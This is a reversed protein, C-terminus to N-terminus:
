SIPEDDSDLETEEIKGVLELMDLPLMTDQKEVQINPMRLRYEFIFRVKEINEIEKALDGIVADDVAQIWILYDTIFLDNFIYRFEGSSVFANHIETLIHVLAGKGHKFVIKLDEVIKQALDFNRYLPYCLSRRVAFALAQKATEYRVLYSLTPSLKRLTWGSECTMEWGNVRQEYCFAFIMDILGLAVCKQEKETLKPLKKVKLDKLKAINDDSIKLEMEFDANLISLLEDDPDLTDALYREEDFNEMDYLACKELRNSIECCEPNELDLINGIEDRLREIVGIKKWAFGYGFDKAMPEKLRIEKEVDRVEQPHLFANEDDEEDDGIEQNEEDEIEEVMERGHIERQPRLLETVMDLCEFKEGHHLKEITIMFESKEDNFEISPQREAVERVRQKLHLRLYYPACSFIFMDDGYDVEAEQIKAYPTRIRIKLFQDDTCNDVIKKAWYSNQTSTPASNFHLFRDQAREYVLLTWHSGGCQNTADVNDNLMFMIIQKNTLDLAQFCEIAAEPTGMMKLIECEPPAFIYVVKKTHEDADDMLWEAAFSLLRDNIWQGKELLGLDGRTLNVCGYSLIQDDASM